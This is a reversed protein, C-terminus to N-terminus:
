GGGTGEGEGKGQGGEGEGRGERERGEGKVRGYNGLRVTECQSNQSSKDYGGLLMKAQNIHTYPIVMFNVPNSPLKHNTKVNNRHFVLWLSGLFQACHMIMSDLRFQTMSVM